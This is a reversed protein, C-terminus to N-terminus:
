MKISIDKEMRTRGMRTVHGLCQFSTEDWVMLVNKIRVEIFIENRIRDRTEGWHLSEYEDSSNQKQREKYSGKSLFLIVLEHFFDLYQSM